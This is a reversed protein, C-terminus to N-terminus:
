VFNCFFFILFANFRTQAERTERVYLKTPLLETELAAPLGREGNLPSVLAGYSCGGCKARLHVMRRKEYRNENLRAKKAMKEAFRSRRFLGRVRKVNEAM